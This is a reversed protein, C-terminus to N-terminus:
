FKSLAAIKFEEETTFRFLCILKLLPDESSNRNPAFSLASLDVQEFNLSDIRDQIYCLIDTQKLFWFVDMLDFLANEDGAEQFRTWSANVSPLLLVSTKKPDFASLVPNLADVLRYRHKPFFQDLLTTFSLAQEKFFALYFLYTALTQDSVKVVENEYLDLVEMEHLQRAATWFTEPSIGFAETISSMLGENTRDVVRFFTIVGAVKLLDSNKFDALEEWIPGFYEDYLASVDNISQLTNESAAVRAAMVALRPNGKAIDSIRELVYPHRIEFEDTVLEKIEKDSFSGIEIETVCGYPKAKEKVKELAYDRVTLIVKIKRDETQEHLLDLIYEFGSVRNADDVFILYNGPPKFYVQLDNFLEAGRNRICFVKFEPHAQAFQDCCELALRSKGVGARGSVTVLDTGDLANVVREVESERFHFSTDLRAAFSSKNYATIFQAPEVIQGTDIEVGLFDRALDPYKQYLDYSIPGIGFVSLNCGQRQCEEALENEELPSLVGNHCLVVEQIKAIPIGTKQEDFCKSLDERFKEYVREQQTTSEVFVFKGNPLATLSDPTGKRVKDMGIVLGIPNICDYGRKHLYLDSLRQFKAQDIAKLESQIQNLKSM